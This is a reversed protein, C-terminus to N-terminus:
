CPIGRKALHLLAVRCRPHLFERLGRCGYPRAPVAARLRAEFLPSSCALPRSYGLDFADNACTNQWPRMPHSAGPALRSPPAGLLGGCGAQGPLVAPREPCWLPRIRPRLAAPPCKAPPRRSLATSQPREGGAASPSLSVTPLPLAGKRGGALDPRRGWRRTLEASQWRHWPRM